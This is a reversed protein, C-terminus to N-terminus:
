RRVLRLRTGLNHEPAVEYGGEGTSRAGPTAAPEDVAFVVHHTRGLRDGMWARAAPNRPSLLRLVGGGPWGVDAWEGDEDEGRGLLEGGLTTGFLDFAAEADAVALTVRRLEAPRAVRPLVFSLPDPVAPPDADSQALQVVIGHSQKPHLFAQKWTPHDIDVSVPTYGRAELAALQAAVDRVKFTVHHPGPGNRDLFRRLFDNEHVEEPELLEVATEGGGANPFVVQSWHFGPDHGGYGVRGGLDAFYRAFNDFAQEAAVALHDLDIAPAPGPTAM